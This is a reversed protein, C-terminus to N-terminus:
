TESIEMAECRGPVALGDSEDVLLQGVLPLDWCRITV